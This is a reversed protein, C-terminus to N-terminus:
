ARRTGARGARSVGREALHLAVSAGIIGGGIVVARARVPPDDAARPDFTSAALTAERLREGSDTM